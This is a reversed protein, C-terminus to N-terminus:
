TASLQFLVQIPSRGLVQIRTCGVVKTWGIIGMLLPPIGTSRIKEVLWTPFYPSARPSIPTLQSTQAWELHESKLPSLLRQPGSIRTIDAMKPNCMSKSWSWFLAVGYNMSTVVDSDDRRSLSAEGKIEVTFEYRVELHTYPAHSLSL